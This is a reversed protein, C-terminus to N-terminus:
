GVPLLRGNWGRVREGGSEAGGVKPDRQWRCCQYAVREVSFATRAGSPPLSVAALNSAANGSETGVVQIRSQLDLWRTVQTEWAVRRYTLETLLMDAAEVHQM